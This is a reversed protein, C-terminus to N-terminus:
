EVEHVVTGADRGQGIGFGHNAPHGTRSFIPQGNSTAGIQEGKHGIGLVPGEGTRPLAPEIQVFSVGQQAVDNFLTGTHRVLFINQAMHKSRQPHLAAEEPLLLYLAVLIGRHGVNNGLVPLPLRRIIRIPPKRGIPGQDATDEVERRIDRHVQPLPLVM